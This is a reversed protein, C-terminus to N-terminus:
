GWVAQSERPGWQPRHRACLGQHGKQQMLFLRLWAPGEENQLGKKGPIAPPESAAGTGRFFPRAPCQPPACLSCGDPDGEARPGYGTTPSQLGSQPSSSSVHRRQMSCPCHYGDPELLAIPPPGEWPVAGRTPPLQGQRVSLLLSCLSWLARLGTPYTLGTERRLFM